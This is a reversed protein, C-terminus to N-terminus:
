SCRHIKYIRPLQWWPIHPYEHHEQHYGFHYCTVFSWFTSFKSTQACHPYQYGAEPERHPMFTGFYFLQFSSLLCPLIWFLILNIKPIHFIYHLAYFIAPLGILQRWGCYRSMFYFYWGLLSKHKGNHFDPDRDSAPYRHHLWHKQFLEKYSFIGYLLVTFSGILKNVKLNQPHVLGHIADHATIFLGTSIFTQWLVIPLILGVPVASVHLSFLFILDIIWLSIICSAIAIGYVADHQNSQQEIRKRAIAHQLIATSSESM